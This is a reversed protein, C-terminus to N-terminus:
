DRVYNQRINVASCPCVAVQSVVDWRSAVLRMGTAQEWRWLMNDHDSSLAWWDSLAGTLGGGRKPAQMAGQTNSDGLAAQASSRADAVVACM